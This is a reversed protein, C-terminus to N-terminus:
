YCSDGIVSFGLKELIKRYQGDDNYLRVNYASAERRIRYNGRLSEFTEPASLMNQHDETVDYIQSYIETILALSDEESGDAFLTPESPPPVNDPKWNNLGLDFHTSLAQVSMYTGKSKGDTSYGAIHPTALELMGILEMDLKPENQFVDLVAARLKGEKLASKLAEEKLVEGRSTNIFFSDKKMNRFFSAEAM